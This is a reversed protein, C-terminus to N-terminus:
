RMGVIKYTTYDDLDYTKVIVESFDEPLDSSVPLQRTLLEGNPLIIDTEVMEGNTVADYVDCIMYIEEHDAADSRLSDVTVIWAIINVLLTLVILLIILWKNRMM